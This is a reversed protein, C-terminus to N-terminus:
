IPSDAPILRCLMNSADLMKGLTAQLIIFLRVSTALATVNEFLLSQEELLQTGLEQLFDELNLHNMEFCHKPPM